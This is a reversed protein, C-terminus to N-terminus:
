FIPKWELVKIMQAPFNTKGESDAQETHLVFINLRRTQNWLETDYSPEWSGVSYTTLDHLEWKKDLINRSLAVSVKNDREADRFLMAVSIKKGSNSVVLQPRSIPIRKTGQGSLSFATNRFGLNQVQWQKNLLYVLHYQPVTTGTDCWYSAIYPNGQSDSFMSTQNILESKQSIRLAYEANAATIPLSYKEGTTKEWTKGGDKSRAYCIDHNSAVDPSERWVWSVHITGKSDTCIQWYANRKGEGDILNSHLQTWQKTAKNYKNIVLNGRGSGGDRYFFLLNGDPMKYFEPYSVSNETKGTMPIKETMDLSGPKISRCYRLPNNHHDWALHLFGDGDVMMSICNHADAANGKYTTRKLIWQKSGQKRKGLVVYTEKDYFSIFQTDKYSVLSNKRFVVTNVTNSAWASDVETISVSVNTQAESQFSYLSILIILCTRHM